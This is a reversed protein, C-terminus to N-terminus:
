RRWWRDERARAIRHALAEALEAVARPLDVEYRGDSHRLEFPGGPSLVPDHVMPCRGAEVEEAEPVAYTAAVRELTEPGLEDGRLVKAFLSRLHYNLNRTQEASALRAPWGLLVKATLQENSRVPFHALHLGEVHVSKIRKGRRGGRRIRHNGVELRMAPDAAIARPVLVKRVQVLEVARRHQVRELVNPVAPDDETRPVYSRWSLDHVRDPALEEFLAPLSANEAPVMFEDADLLLVWDAGLETAARHMHETTLKSQLLEPRSESIVEISAGEGMLARLIENTADISRHDIVVMHDVFGLHHRVFAELVDAENRVMTVSVIRM